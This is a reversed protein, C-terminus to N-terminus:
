FYHNIRQIQVKKKCLVGQKTIGKNYWMFIINTVQASAEILSIMAKVQANVQIKKQNIQNAGNSLAKSSVQNRSPDVQRFYYPIYMISSKSDLTKM